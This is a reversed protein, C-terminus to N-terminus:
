PQNATVPPGVLELFGQFVDDPSNTISVILRPQGLIIEFKESSDNWSSPDNAAPAHKLNWSLATVVPLRLGHNMPFWTANYDYPGAPSNINGEGYNSTARLAYGDPVKAMFGIGPFAIFDGFHKVQVTAKIQSSADPPQPAPHVFEISGALTAGHGNTVCFVECPVSSTFTLPRQTWHDRIQATAAEAEAAGFGDEEKFWWSFSTSTGASGSKYRLFVNADGGATEGDPLQTLLRLKEGPLLTSDSWVQVTRTDTTNGVLSNTARTLIITKTPLAIQSASNQVLKYRIKVGRPNETFGTIQLVGTQGDDTQFAYLYDDTGQWKADHWAMSAFQPLWPGGSTNKSPSATQSQLASTMQLPTVTEFTVGPEAPVIAAKMEFGFLGRKATTPPGYGHTLSQIVPYPDSEHWNQSFESFGAGHAGHAHAWEWIASFNKEWTLSATPRFTEGTKFNLLWDKGSEYDYVTREVVPGFSLDPAAAAIDRATKALDYEPQTLKGVALLKGAVDLNFEALKLKLRAVAMADNQLEAVTIDHVIQARDYEVPPVTGLAVKQKITELEQDAAQLKLRDVEDDAMNTQGGNQVLKYRLKVGRPNETFGTIQLLGIEGTRSQVAFTAPLAMPRPLMYSVIGGGHVAQLTSDSQLADAINRASATEWLESSFGTLKAGAHELTMLMLRNEMVMALFDPETNRWWEVVAKASLDTPDAPPLVLAGDSLRLLVPPPQSPDGTLTREVVPGFALAPAAAPKPNAKPDPKPQWILMAALNERVPQGNSKEGVRRHMQFLELVCNNQDLGRPKGLHVQKVQEVVKTAAAVDPLVFGIQYIPKGKLLTTGALTRDYGNNFRPAVLCDLNTAASAAAASYDFLQGSYEVYLGREPYATDCALKIVVVAGQQSVATVHILAEGYEGSVSANLRDPIWVGVPERRSWWQFVEILLIASWCVGLLWVTKKNLRKPTSAPPVSAGKPPSQTARWVQSLIIWGIGVVMFLNWGWAGQRASAFAGAWLVMLLFAMLVIAMTHRRTFRPEAELKQMGGEEKQSGATINEVMTKVESVQQYRLEPKKELARLVIEDLRVDIQVKKSPAEIKKGPLEGTLMQYFVVGLAYIDARHDVAGPAQIQEPSMYQPTGMVGGADTLERLAGTGPAAVDSAISAELKELDGSSTINSRGPCGREPEVIKALGFDAVKVRGRRDLLINEPKIDRHVIGQDHAFQLADCIQPVIALAERPAIRSGALLQRLNLGDVFEMLFYFQGGADGFEYLTVINPHNLKALAKAERAFREAFAPEDGIGPPLIKLAVIRDLQKQRAKYVAGMGGKGVLKLIELQPFKAALEAVSPPVFAKQKADTVTDAAAGMKLLCAPCLGALAGFPLPTGCRPCNNKDPMPPNMKVTDM